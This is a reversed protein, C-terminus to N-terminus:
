RVALAIITAPTNSRNEFRLGNEKNITIFDGPDKMGRARPQPPNGHVVVHTSTALVIIIPHRVGPWDLPMGPALDIRSQTFYESAVGPAGPMSALVDLDPALPERRDNTILMLHFGENGVNNVRHAFPERRSDDNHSVSGPLATAASPDSWEGGLPQAKVATRNLTIYFTPEAHRHYLTTGGPPILIDLIKYDDSDFVLRHFPEEYVPVISQGATVSALALLAFTALTTRM